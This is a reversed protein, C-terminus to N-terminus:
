QGLPIFVCGDSVLLPPTKCMARALRYAALVKPVYDRTEAYPPVGAHERVAGEGANYGALVLVPDQEFSKMLHDLFAVGGKINDPANLADTVGFREVTAPMLQMLGQAGMTSVADVRGSSEVAIVALILAPSVDTGISAILIDTGHAAVIETMGQMSFEPAAKGSPPVKLIHMADFLRAPSAGAIDSAVAEWFWPYSTTREIQPQVSSTAQPVSGETQWGSQDVRQGLAEAQAQPDVQITIRKQAGTVPPKIRKAKFDPFPKPTDALVGGGQVLLFIACLSGFRGM